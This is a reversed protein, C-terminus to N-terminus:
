HQQICCHQEIIAHHSKPEVLGHCRRRRAPGDSVHRPPRARGPSRRLRRQAPRVHRPVRCPWERRQHCLHRKPPVPQPARRLGHSGARRVRAAAAQRLACDRQPRIPSRFLPPPASTRLCSRYSRLGSPAGPGLTARLESREGYTATFNAEWAPGSDHGFDNTGPSRLVPRCLRPCALACAGIVSKMRCCVEM